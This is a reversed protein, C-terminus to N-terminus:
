RATAAATGLPLVPFSREWYVILLYGIVREFAVSERANCSIAKVRNRGNCLSTWVRPDFKALIETLGRKFVSQRPECM